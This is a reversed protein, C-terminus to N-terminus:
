VGESVAVTYFTTNPLSYDTTDDIVFYMRYSGAKWFSATPTFTCIGSAATTVVLIPSADLTSVTQWDTVARGADTYKYIMKVATAGALNIAVGDSKLTWIRATTEGKRAPSLATDSM